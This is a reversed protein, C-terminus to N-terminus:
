MLADKLVSSASAVDLAIRSKFEAPYRKQAVRSM